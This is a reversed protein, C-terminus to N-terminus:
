KKNLPVYVYVTVTTTNNPDTNCSDYATYVVVYTRGEGVGAREARLKFKTDPSGFDAEQIDNATDGDGLGDDPESSTISTLVFSSDPDCVDSVVVTADIEVLKHNPPWLTEKSLTVEIEPPTTDVVTVTATCSSSNGCYDTATFTVPTTGINFFLPADNVLAPSPDCGDTASVSAFFPDLQLDGAQVGCNETCEVTIDMPCIIDPPVTDSITVTSTATDEGEADSVTLTVNCTISCGNSTDLTLLPMPSTPDDFSAGLCDTTWSYTLVDDELDYSGSGDLLVSTAAGACEADYPGGADAVPVANGFEVDLIYFVFAAIPVDGPRPYTCSYSMQTPVRFLGNPRVGAATGWSNLTLWYHNAPDPDDDNYGLIVVAHGGAQAANWNTGCYDDILNCLSAETEGGTGNWFGGFANWAANDPLAFGFYVAKNQNLVNKINQIATAQDVGDWFTTTEIRQEAISIIPYNPTTSISGCATAPPCPNDFADRCCNGGDAFFANTNDWPICFGQTSYWAAFTDISSGCCGNGPDRCSNIFQVSLRDFVGDQVDHAIELLGTSAWAWCNGCSGQNRQNPVYEIHGLLDMSTEYNFAQALALGFKITTDIHARPAAAHEIMFRTWTDPDFRMIPYTSKDDAWLNAVFVIVLFLGIMGLFFKRRM